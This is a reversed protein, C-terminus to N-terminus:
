LKVRFLARELDLLMVRHMGEMSCLATTNLLSSLPRFPSSSSSSFPHSSVQATASPSRCRADVGSSRLRRSREELTKPGPHLSASKDPTTLGHSRSRSPAELAAAGEETGSSPKPKWIPGSIDMRGEEKKGRPRQLREVTTNYNYNRTRLWTQFTTNRSSLDIIADLFYIFSM